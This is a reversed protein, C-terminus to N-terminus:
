YVFLLFRCFKGSRNLQLNKQLLLLFSYSKKKFLFSYGEFANIQLSIYWHSFGNVVLIWPRKVYRPITKYIVNQHWLRFSTIRFGRNTEPTYLIFLSMLQNIRFWIPLKKPPRLIPKHKLPELNPEINSNLNPELNPEFNQELNPELNPELNQEM